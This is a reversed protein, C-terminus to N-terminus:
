PYTRFHVQLWWMRSGCEDRVMREDPNGEDFLAMVCVPLGKTFSSVPEQQLIVSWDGVTDMVVIAKKQM